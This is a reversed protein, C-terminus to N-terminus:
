LFASHARLLELLKSNQTRPDSPTRTPTSASVNISGSTNAFTSQITYGYTGLALTNPFVQQVM